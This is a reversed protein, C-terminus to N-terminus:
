YNAMGISIAHTKINKIISDTNIQIDTQWIKVATYALVLILKQSNFNFLYTSKRWKHLMQRSWQLHDKKLTMFINIPTTFIYNTILNQLILLLCNNVPLLYVIKIYNNYIQIFNNKMCDEYGPELRWSWKSANHCWQSKEFNGGFRWAGLTEVSVFCSYSYTFKFFDCNTNRCRISIYTLSHNVCCKSTCAALRSVDWDFWFYTYIYIALEAVPFHLWM